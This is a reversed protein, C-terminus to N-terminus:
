NTLTLLVTRPTSPSLTSSWMHVEAFASSLLVCQQRRRFTARLRWVVVRVHVWCRGDTSHEEGVRTANQSRGGRRKGHHCHHHCDVRVCWPVLACSSSGQPPNRTVYNIGAITCSAAQRVRSRCRSTSNQEEKRDTLWQHPMTPRRPPM